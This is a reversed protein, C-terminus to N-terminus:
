RLSVQHTVWANGRLARAFYRGPPVSFAKESAIDNASFSQVREGRTNFLELAVTGEGFGDSAKWGQFIKHFSKNIGKEQRMIEMNVGAPKLDPSELRWIHGARGVVYLYGSLDTAFSTPAETLNPMKYNEVVTAGSVIISHMEKNSYDAYFYAGYFPSAPNSRFVHGGIVCEVSNINYDLIPKIFGTQSCTTGGDFCHTGEMTNWGMDGGAPVTDIEEYANQGVDGLWFTWKVPDFSWKWPNRVGWAYIEPLFDAQGVFPNTSPVAYNKGGESKDVDVRLIKSFFVDKRRSNKYTDGGGGGDGFGLYLYGDKPGFGISGGNHNTAPQVFSFLVKPTKGSDKFWTSDVEREEVISKLTSGATSGANYSLYYKHNETFKPHFAFGLLGVEDSNQTVDVHVFTSKKWTGTDKKALVVDGTKQELILFVGPKGPMEFFAVPSNFAALKGEFADVYTVNKPLAAYTSASLSLAALGLGIAIKGLVSSDSLHNEASLFGFM